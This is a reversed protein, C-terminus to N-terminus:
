QPVGHCGVVICKAPAHVPFAREALGDMAEGHDHGEVARSTKTLERCQDACVSTLNSSQPGLKSGEAEDGIAFAQLEDRLDRVSDVYQGEAQPGSADALTLAPFVLLLPLFVAFTVGTADM